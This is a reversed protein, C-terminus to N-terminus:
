AACRALHFDLRLFAALSALAAEIAAHVIQEALELARVRSEGPPDGVAPHQDLLARDVAGVAGAALEHRREPQELLVRRECAGAAREGVRDAVDREGAAGVRDVDRADGGARQGPACVASLAATLECSM